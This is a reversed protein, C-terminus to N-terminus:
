FYQFLRETPWGDAPLGNKRQMDRVAARTGAGLIGDIKGVDYGLSALNRQLVKMRDGSLGGHNKGANYIKAGGLRTGFYGATLVYTLSQNWELLVSFNPYALFAPGTRGM